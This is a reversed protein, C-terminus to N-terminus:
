GLPPARPDHPSLTLTAEGTADANPAITGSALCLRAEAVPLAQVAVISTTLCEIVDEFDGGDYIGGVWYPDIPCAWAMPLLVRILALLVFLLSRRMVSVPAVPQSGTM